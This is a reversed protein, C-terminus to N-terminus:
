GLGSDKSLGFKGKLIGDLMSTPIFKKMLAADPEHKLPNKLRFIGPTQGWFGPSPKTLPTEL